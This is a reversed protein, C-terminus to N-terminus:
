KKIVEAGEIRGMVRGGNRLHVEVEFDAEVIISGEVVSDGDLTIKLPADRHNNGKSDQIIIDGGVRSGDKLDVDGNVTSIDGTVQAGHLKIRGNINSVEGAQSGNDMTISGNVAVVDKDVVTGGGVHIGGNVTTLSEVTADSGVKISGNVTSCEGNIQADDGINISGNVTSLDKDRVEGAGVRISENMGAGTGLLATVLLLGMITLNKRKM